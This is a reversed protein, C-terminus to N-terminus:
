STRSAQRPAGPTGLCEDNHAGSRPAPRTVAPREGDFSLPMGLVKPAGQPGGDVIIDLAQTQESAIVDPITAVPAYPIGAEDLRRSWYETSHQVVAAQIQEVLPARHVVRSGNSAYRPDELWEPRELLRALKVFLRDNGIAIILRGDSTAYSQYPSLAPHGDASRQPPEGSSLYNAIHVSTYSLTTEYLSTEVVCGEGTRARRHLAGLIGIAAWMGSGMDIISPGARTPPGDPSGTLSMLGGYAQLLLDYGPRMRLPGESGFASIGAYILRPFKARLTAADLGLSEAAGPRLNHLLVDSDGVLEILHSLDIRDKLDLSVSRKNVNSLHFMLSDDGHFPPGMRRGDDGGDPKEVKIVDAGLDALIRGAYPASLNQGIEIVRVDNLLM